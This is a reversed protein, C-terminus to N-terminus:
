ALARHALDQHPDLLWMVLIYKTGGTVVDGRHLRDAPFVVGKGKRPISRCAMLPFVTAGGQFDDNLYVVLAMRRRDGVGKDSHVNFFGGEDYRVLRLESIEFDGLSLQRGISTARDRAKADFARFAEPEDDQKLESALRVDERLRSANSKMSRVPAARWVTLTRVQELIRDAEEEDFFSCQYIGRGLEHLPIATMRFRSPKPM